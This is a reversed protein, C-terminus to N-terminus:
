SMQMFVHVSNLSPRKELVDSVFETDSFVTEDAFRVMDFKVVDNEICALIFAKDLRHKNFSPSSNALKNAFKLFDPQYRFEDDLGVISNIM